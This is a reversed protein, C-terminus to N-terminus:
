IQYNCISFIRISLVKLDNSLTNLEMKYFALSLIGMYIIIAGIAFLNKGVIKRMKRKLEPSMKKNKFLEEKLIEDM